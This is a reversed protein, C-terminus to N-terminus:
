RLFPSIWGVLAGLNRSQIYLKGRGSFECVLGEGSFLLSKLGGSVGKIKFDLSSDFAVIHGTDVIYTGDVDIEHIGGYSNIFLDGQGSSELFFLGEGGFLGRLGAWRMKTELQGSSALYSGAQVLLSRDGSTMRKHWIPGSLGPALVVEGGQGPATFTNVFMTEGGFVKRMLAVFFAMVKGFFGSKNGANLATTMEIGPTMTVMAGAEAEISEGPGLQVRLWAFSPGYEVAHQM